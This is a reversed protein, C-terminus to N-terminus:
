HHLHERPSHKERNAPILDTLLLGSFGFLSFTLLGMVNFATGAGTFFHLPLLIAASVLSLLLLKRCVELYEGFPIRQPAPEDMLGQREDM